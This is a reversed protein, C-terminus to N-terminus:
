TNKQSKSLQDSVKDKSESAAKSKSQEPFSPIDGGSQTKCLMLGIICHIRSDGNCNSQGQTFIHPLFPRLM